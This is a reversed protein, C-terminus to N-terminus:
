LEYIRDVIFKVPVSEICWVDNVSVGFIYGDLAMQKADIKLIVPNKNKRRIASQWAKTKLEQLHVAHRKMKSIYGTEEILKLADTTTGHYLYPPPEIYKLEPQVWPIPHGQCAKIKSLSDNFQYRQKQDKEVITKLTEMDFHYKGKENIKQILEEVQVWGHKDMSLDINDEPHHRLIYSLYISLNKYITM